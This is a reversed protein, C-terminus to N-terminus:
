IATEMGNDAVLASKAKAIFIFLKWRITFLFYM